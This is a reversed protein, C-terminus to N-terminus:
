TVLSAITNHRAWFLGMMKYVLKAVMFDCHALHSVPALEVADFGIIERGSKQLAQMITMGDQWFFGGPEPTGTAPMCSPDFADVDVTVYVQRPLTRILEPLRDLSERVGCCNIRNQRIFIAEEECISRIGMQVFPIKMDAVRRMIAAHSYKTGEYADRLDGHADLQLVGFQPFHEHVAQLVGNTVSHEGGLMVPRKGDRLVQRTLDCVRDMVTAPDTDVDIAPLTAIGIDYPNCDCDMDYMELYYSADVIAKPGAGTGKGYSVTGEYPVQIIAVSCDNYDRHAPPYKLFSQEVPEAKLPTANM